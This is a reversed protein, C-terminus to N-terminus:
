LFERQDLKWMRLFTRHGEWSTQLNRPLNRIEYGDSGGTEWSQWIRRRQQKLSEKNRDQHRGFQPKLRRGSKSLFGMRVSAQTCRGSTGSPKQSVPSMSWPFAERDRLLGNPVWWTSHGEERDGGRFQPQWDRRQSSSPVM